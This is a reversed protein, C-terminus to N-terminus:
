NGGAGERGGRPGRRRYVRGEARLERQSGPAGGRVGRGETRVARRPVSGAWEGEGAGAGAVAPSM